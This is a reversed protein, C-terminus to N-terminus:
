EYGLVLTGANVTVRTIRLARCHRLRYFQNLAPLPVTVTQSQSNAAAGAVTAYPGQPADAAELIPLAEAEGYAAIIGRIWTLRASIRTAYWAAPQPWPREPVLSWNGESGEYLGGTDFIAAYFGAGRDTTNFPGDVSLNLGALQWAGGSQIFVGGGSDGGALGAENSGGDADFTARLLEGQGSGGNVSGTIQNQGWRLRGDAAGWRWGKLATSTGNTVVVAEGRSAGAGFVVCWKGAEDRGAYLPAYFPFVGCVQWIALDSETDRYVATTPYAKGGFEFPAGVSGRVHKATVFLSPAIPTGLFGAWKGQYQWGSGALQGTPETANYLPDDTSYFIVGRAPLAAALLCLLALRASFRAMAGHAHDTIPFARILITVLPHPISSLM